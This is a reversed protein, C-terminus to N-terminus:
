ASPTGGGAKLLGITILLRKVSQRFSAGPLCHWVVSSFKRGENYEKIFKARAEPKKSPSVLQGNNQIAGDIDVPKYVARSANLLEQGKATQCLVLSVGKPMEGKLDTGWSDGLTIDSVRKTSAYACSYCNETYDLGALFAVSYPDVVGPVDLTISGQRLQFRGKNRFDIEKIQKLSLGRERLFSDLVRPSPSGHCILDVCYLRTRLSAPVFNRIASIQCPLGIFLVKEGSKLLATVQKYSGVPNSKVYKSGRSLNLEDKTRSTSFGFEGSDFRCSCVVGGSDIFGSSIATAIGGSSSAMRDDSNSAWGQLWKIPERYSAPNMQQCVSVCRGCDICKSQDIHPEYYEVGQEVSVAKHPCADVCAMCGACMKSTCISQM